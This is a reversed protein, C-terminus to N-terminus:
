TDFYAGTRANNGSNTFVGLLSNVIVDISDRATVGYITIPKLAGPGAPAVGPSANGLYEVVAKYTGPNLNAFGKFRGVLTQAAALNQVMSDGSALLRVGHLRSRLVGTTTSKSNNALTYWVLLSDEPRIEHPTVSDIIVQVVHSRPDLRRPPHQSLVASPMAAGLIAMLPLSTRVRTTFNATM